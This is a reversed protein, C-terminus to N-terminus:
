PKHGRKFQEKFTYKVSWSKQQLRAQVDVGEKLVIVIRRYSSVVPMKQWRSGFLRYTITQPYMKEIEPWLLQGLAYNSANDVVGLSNVIIASSRQKLGIRFIYTWHGYVMLYVAAVALILTVILSAWSKYALNFMLLLLILAMGGYFILSYIAFKQRMQARDFEFAIM